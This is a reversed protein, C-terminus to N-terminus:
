KSGQNTVALKILSYFYRYNFIRRDQNGTVMKQSYPKLLHQGVPFAADGVVHYPTSVGTGPLNRPPPLNMTGDELKEKLDCRGWVGGDSVRGNM